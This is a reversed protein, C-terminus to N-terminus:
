LGELLSTRKVNLLHKIDGMKNVEMANLCKKSARKIRLEITMFSILNPSQYIERSLKSLDIKAIRM